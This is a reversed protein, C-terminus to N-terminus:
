NEHLSRVATSILEISNMVEDETTFRSFGVRLCERAENLGLGLASLVHSPQIEGASCASGTSVALFPQLIGVLRDAQIGPFRLNLNHPIRRAHDGVLEVEPLREKIVEWFRTGLASVRAHSEHLTVMALRAAMGFGVCLPVPVTGPRLGLEQGGGYYVPMPRCPSDSAIYLAGIGKPGHIKHASLSAMHLGLEMVDVPIKGVAQAVDSHIVTTESPVSAVLAQLDQVVGVENNVLMVSVLSTDSRLRGEFQSVEVLGDAGVPCYDVQVGRSELARCTAHISKHEITTTVFHVPESTNALAIGQLAINNSETAGSTFILEDLSCGILEAVSERAEAVALDAKRGFAHESHPNAYLDRSARAIAEIVELAEATSAQNDLFIM